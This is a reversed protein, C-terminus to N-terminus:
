FCTNEIQLQSDTSTSPQSYTRRPRHWKVYSVQTDASNHFWHGASVLPRICKLYVHLVLPPTFPFCPLSSLSSLSLSSVVPDPNLLPLSFKLYPLAHWGVPLAPVSAYPMFIGCSPVLEPTGPPSPFKSFNPLRFLLLSSPDAPVPYLAVLGQASSVHSTQNVHAVFTFYVASKSSQTPVFINFYRM